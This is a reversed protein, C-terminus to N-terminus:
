IAAIGLASSTMATSVPCRGFSLSASAVQAGSMDGCVGAHLSRCDLHASTVTRKGNSGSQTPLALERSRSVTPPLARSNATEVEGAAVAASRGTQCRCRQRRALGLHQRPDGLALRSTASMRPMLGPVTLLCRSSTNSFSPTSVRAAVAASALQSNPQGLLIPLRRADSRHTRQESPPACGLAARRARARDRALQRHGASTFGAAHAMLREATCHSVGAAHARSSRAAHAGYHVASRVALSPGQVHTRSARVSM